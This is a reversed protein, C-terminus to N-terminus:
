GDLRNGTTVSFSTIRIKRRRRRCTHAAAGAPSTAATRWCGRGPGPRWRQRRRRRASGAPVAARAHHHHIPPPPRHLAPTRMCVVRERACARACVCVDTHISSQHTLSLTRLQLVTCTQAAIAQARVQVNCAQSATELMDDLRRMSLLQARYVKRLQSDRGVADFPYSLPDRDRESVASPFLRPSPMLSCGHLCSPRQWLRGNIRLSTASLQPIRRGSAWDRGGGGGGRKM